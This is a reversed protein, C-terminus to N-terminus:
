TRFYKRILIGDVKRTDKKQLVFGNTLNLLGGGPIKSDFSLKPKAVFITNNTCKTYVCKAHPHANLWNPFETGENAIIIDGIELFGFIAHFGNKSKGRFRVQGNVYKTHQFWGFFLFLDGKAVGQNRLHGAAKDYQGFAPRWGPKRQRVCKVLDPDLHVSQHGIAFGTKLEEILQHYTKDEPTFIERYELNDWERSSPIPLSLMKGDPLIPSAHGGNSSDFGKRSLIIKM